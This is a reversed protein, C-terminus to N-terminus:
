SATVQARRGCGCTGIFQGRISDGYAIAPKGDALCIYAMTYPATKNTPYVAYNTNM